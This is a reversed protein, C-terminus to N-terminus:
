WCRDVYTVREFRINSCYLDASIGRTIIQIWQVLSFFRVMEKIPLPLELREVDKCRSSIRRVTDISVACDMLALRQLPVSASGPPPIADIVSNWIPLQRDSFKLVLTSLSTLSLFLSTITLATADATPRVDIALHQLSPLTMTTSCLFNTPTTTEQRSNTDILKIL